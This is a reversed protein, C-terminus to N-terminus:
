EKPIFGENFFLQKNSPLRNLQFLLIPTPSSLKFGLVSHAVTSSQSTKRKIEVEQSDIEGERGRERM